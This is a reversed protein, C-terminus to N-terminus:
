LDQVEFLGEPLEVMLIEEGEKHEPAIVQRNVDRSEYSVANMISIYAGQIAVIIFRQFQDKKKLVKLFSPHSEKLSLTKHERTKLNLLEVRGYNIGVIQYAKSQYRVVDGIEFYPIRVCYTSQYIPKGDKMTKLKTSYEISAALKEALYKALSKAFEESGIFLDIGGKAKDVVKSIYAMKNGEAMEAKKEQILQSIKLQEEEKIARKESRIQIISEFYGRALKACRDCVGINVIMELAVEQQYPPVEEKPSGEFVIRITQKGAEEPLPEDFDAVLVKKCNKVKKAKSFFEDIIGHITEKRDEHTGRWKGHYMFDGCIKCQTLVLQKAPLSKILPFEDKYCELCFGDIIQGETDTKGCKCCFKSM